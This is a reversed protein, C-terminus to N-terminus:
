TCEVRGQQRSPLCPPHRMSEDVPRRQPAPVRQRAAGRAAALVAKAHGRHVLATVPHSQEVRELTATRRLTLMKM